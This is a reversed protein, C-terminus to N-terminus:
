HTNTFEKVTCCEVPFTILDQSYDVNWCRIFYTTTYPENSLYAFQVCRVAHHVPENSLYAFQVCRVAHHVAQEAYAGHQQSLDWVKVFYLLPQMVCLGVICTTRKNILCGKCIKRAVTWYLCNESGVLQLICM